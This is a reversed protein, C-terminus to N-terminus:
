LFPLFKQYIRGSESDQDTWHAAALDYIWQERDFTQPANICGIDTNAINWSVCSSDDVFVPVGACVAAVSASSNFFVASHSEQLNQVLTTTGPDVVSVQKMAQYKVFHKMDYAGPHPRIVIARNTHQRIAAIKQDLWSMPQIGNMAFGGDRQMCILISGNSHNRYPKLSVGLDRSLRLWQENTSATNAYNNRDYYPGGLSYRLYVSNNDIYKFCSADICMTQYKLKAQEEIIHKRLQINPGGRTIPTAWGLIVALGSASYRNKTEVHVRLGLNRAGQAFSELCAVKRPHKHPNAVSSVYVIVDHKM